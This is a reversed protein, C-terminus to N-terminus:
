ERCLRIAADIADKVVPWEEPNIAVGKDRSLCEVVVFEGAGEDDITVYVASDDFMGEGKPAIAWKIPRVEHESM